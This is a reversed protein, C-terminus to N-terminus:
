IIEEVNIGILKVQKGTRDALVKGGAKNYLFFGELGIEQNIRRFLHYSSPNNRKIRHYFVVKRKQKGDQLEVTLKLDKRRIKKTRDIQEAIDWAAYKKKTQYFKKQVLAEPLSEFERQNLVNVLSDPPLMRESVIMYERNRVVQVMAVESKYRDRPNMFRGKIDRFIVRPTRKAAM